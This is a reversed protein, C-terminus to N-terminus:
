CGLSTSRAESSFPSLEIYLGNRLCLPPTSVRGRCGRRLRVAVAQEVSVVLIGALPLGRGPPDPEQRGNDMGAVKRSGALGTAQASALNIM